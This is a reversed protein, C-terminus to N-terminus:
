VGDSFVVDSTLTSEWRKLLAIRVWGERCGNAGGHVVFNHVTHGAISHECGTIDDRDVASGDDIAPVAIGGDANRDTLDAVFYAFKHAHGFLRQPTPEGCCLKAAPDAVDGM